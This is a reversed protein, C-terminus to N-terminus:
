WNRADAPVAATIYDLWDKLFAYFAYDYTV